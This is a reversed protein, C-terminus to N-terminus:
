WQQGGEPKPWDRLAKVAATGLEAIRRDPDVHGHLENDRDIVVRGVYGLRSLQIPNGEFVITRTDTGDISIQQPVDGAVLDRAKRAVELWAERQSPTRLDWVQEVTTRVVGSAGAVHRTHTLQKALETLSAEDAAVQQARKLEKEIRDVIDNLKSLENRIGANRGAPFVGLKDRESILWQRVSKASDLHRQLAEVNDTM